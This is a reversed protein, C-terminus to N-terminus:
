AEVPKRLNKLDIGLEHCIQKVSAPMSTRVFNKEKFLNVSKVKDTDFHESIAETRYKSKYLENDQGNYRNEEGAKCDCHLAYEYERYHIEGTVPNVSSQVKEKRFGFGRDMCVYCKTIGDYQPEDAKHARAIKKYMDEIEAIQPANYRRKEKMLSEIADQALMYDMDALVNCYLDFIIKDQFRKDDYYKAMLGTLGTTENREM